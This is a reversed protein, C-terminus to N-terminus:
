HSFVNNMFTNFAWMGIRKSENVRKVHYVFFGNILCLYVHLFAFTNFAFAITAQCKKYM